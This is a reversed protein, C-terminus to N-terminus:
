RGDSHGPFGQPWRPNPVEPPFSLEIEPGGAITYALPDIEFRKYLEVMSAVTRSLRAELLGSEVSWERERPSGVLYGMKGNRSQWAAGADSPQSHSMWRNFIIQLTDKLAAVNRRLDREDISVLHKMEESSVAEGAEVIFLAVRFLPERPRGDASDMFFQASQIKQFVTPITAILSQKTPLLQLELMAKSSDREQQAHQEAQRLSERAQLLQRYLVLITLGAMAAAAWGSLASIWDRLCADSGDCLRPSFLVFNTAFLVFFGGLFGGFALVIFDGTSMEKM